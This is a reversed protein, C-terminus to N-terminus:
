TNLYRQASLIKTDVTFMTSSQSGGPVVTGLVRTAFGDIAEFGDQLKAERNPESPSKQIVIYQELVRMVTKLHEQFEMIDNESPNSDSSNRVLYAEGNQSILSVLVKLKPAVIKLRTQGVQELLARVKELTYESEPVPTPVAAPKNDSFWGM